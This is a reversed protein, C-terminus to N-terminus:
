NPGTAAAVTRNRGAQKAAYLAADARGFLEMASETQNWCAVGASCTRGGPTARRLREVVAVAFELSWAPFVAAFEEGGYRALLDGARLQARWAIATDTLLADGALHGLEDNYGKFDDLDIVAVCVPHNERAARSLERDLGEQWARRNPLGTLQDTLALAELSRLLAHRDEVIGLLDGVQAGVTALAGRIAQDGVRLGSCFFEIVGVIELDRPVPVYIASHLGARYAAPAGPSASDPAVDRLWTPERRRVAEGALATGARLRLQRGLQEFETADVNPRAWRAALELDGDAGVIWFAGVDWGMNGGLEALLAQLALPPADARAMAQTVSQM